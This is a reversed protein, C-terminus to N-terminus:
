GDPAGKLRALRAALMAKRGDPRILVGHKRLVKYVTGAACGAAAAIKPGSEDAAYRACIDDESLLLPPDPRTGPRRVAGGAARVLELVTTGSCQAQYGVTNSDLGSLYLRVIESDTLKRPGRLPRTPM